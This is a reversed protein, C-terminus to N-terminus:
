RTPFAATPTTITRAVGNTIRFDQIYGNFPQQTGDLNIGIAFAATSNLSGSATQASGIASGNIYAQVSNSANRTIALYYWTGSTLTTAYNLAATFTTGNGYSFSVNSSTLQILWGFLSTNWKGCLTQATGSIASFYVWAEITFAGALAPINTTPMTLYDGTGDFKMSTPSWKSQTTSAQADGVTIANNQVAADYIGANTFNTLLSTNSAAFSTNVNTTSSYSAASTSGATTLPALTPPTFAGTYVATGKVMRLNSFYGPFYNTPGTEAAILMSTGGTIVVNNTFSASGQSVGNLFYTLTTGSRVLALHTWTFLKPVAAFTVSSGGVTFAFLSGSSFAFGFNGSSLTSGHVLACNTPSATQYLWLEVTFDGTGYSFAASNTISLNDSSGNFYGSGGYAAATYSATPSFPQFAQVRPTGNATITFNNTSNDIFRNSQCTLLSTNTIATLPTTSPTFAGTYVATGKVVRHNSIYGLMLEFGATYARGIFCNQQSFNTSNTVAAVSAGNLWITLSTGSRTVACHNWSNAVLATSASAIAVNNRVALLGTTEIYFAIGTAENGTSRSDFIGRTAAFNTVYVWAEVTFDGTGFTFAANNPATIYSSGDFYNSWQGNPWYPTVSGQTPTGNRTITFNNTSSDLFTNNQQGNTSTTELLLPVYPFYPDTTAAAAAVRGSKSAAFM